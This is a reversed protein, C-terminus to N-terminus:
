DRRRARLASLEIDLANEKAMLQEHMGPQWWAFGALERAYRVKRLQRM